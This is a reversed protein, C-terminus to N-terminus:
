WKVWKRRGLDFYYGKESMVEIDHDSLRYASLILEILEFIRKM